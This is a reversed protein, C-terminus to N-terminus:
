ADLGDLAAANGGDLTRMSEAQDVLNKAIAQLAEAIKHMAEEMNGSAPVYDKAFAQGSEDGGWCAGQAQLARTLAEAREVMDEGVHGLKEASAVVQDVEIRTLGTM